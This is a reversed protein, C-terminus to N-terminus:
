PHELMTSIVEYAASFDIPKGIHADMGANYAKQIDERMVNATMAVIKITAADARGSGRILETSECGDMGPMQMDMLILDYYGEPALKYKEFADKGDNATDMEAGTGRLMEIAIERNIEIDDVIMLRRGALEPLKAEALDPLTAPDLREESKVRITFSFTSGLGPRSDLEIEGGMLEVLNKSIVLGLGTGGYKRAM